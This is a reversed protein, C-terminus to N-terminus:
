KFEELSILEKTFNLYANENSVQQILAKTKGIFLLHSEAKFNFPRHNVALKIKKIKQNLLLTESSYYTAKFKQYIYDVAVDNPHLMDEKYFRYDRLEDMVIEYSPFYSVYDFQSVLEKIALQLVAKSQNNEVVGDKWHRVPSVTFIVKLKRNSARLNLLVSEYTEVIESVKLLEKTFEKNAIKHCNAVYEETKNYRYVWATGLTVILVDANNYYNKAKLISNNIEDMVEKKDASNFQSHHDLSVWQEGTDILYEESIFCQNVCAEVAKAVSMPNFLIGYPNISVDFKDDELREGINSTFCSGIMAIKQRHDIKFASEPIIVETRFKM